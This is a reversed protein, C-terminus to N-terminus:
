GLTFSALFSFAWIGWVEGDVGRTYDLAETCIPPPPSVPPTEKRPFLAVRRQASTPPTSRPGFTWNEGKWVPLDGSLISGERHAHLFLLRTFDEYVRGSTSVAVPLFVIPDSMDAYIQRYHRIKIRATKNLAGDPQPAGTCSVRHTLAGDTSQTTRGYRDHTMTVDIVLTRPPLRDVEGRTLIVYDKIEIDGREDGASSTIRHTKVRHGVSRLFLALKYVIWEHAPLTASPRQCTQIHDGYPDFNFQRFILQKKQILISLVSQWSLKDLFLELKRPTYIGWSKTKLREDCRWEYIPRRM